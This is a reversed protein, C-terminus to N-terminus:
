LESGCRFSKGFRIDSAAACFRCEGVCEVVLTVIDPYKGCGGKSETGCVSAAPFSLRFFQMVWACNTLPPHDM